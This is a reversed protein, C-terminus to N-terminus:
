PNAPATASGIESLRVLVGIRPHDFYALKGNRLRREAKLRYQGVQDRYFERQGDPTLNVAFADPAVRLYSLDMSLMPHIHHEFQVWGTLTETEVPPALDPQSRWYEMSSMSVPRTDRAILRLREGAHIRLAPTSAKQAIRMSHETLVRYRGSSSLRRAAANLSSNDLYQVIVGHAQASQQVQIPVDSLPVGPDSDIAVMEPWNLAQFTGTEAPDFAANVDREFVLIDLQWESAQATTGFLLIPLFIFRALTMMPM